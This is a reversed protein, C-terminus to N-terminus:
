RRTFYESIESLLGRYDRNLGEFTWPEPPQHYPYDFKHILVKNFMNNAKEETARYDLLPDNISMAFFLPQSFVDRIYGFDTNLIENIQYIVVDLTGAPFVMIKKKLESLNEVKGINGLLWMILKSSKEGHMVKLMTKQAIKPRLIRALVKIFFIQWKNHTLAKNTLCPSVLIVKKIRDRLLDLTEIALIGGFSFGMLTVKEYGLLDILDRVTEAVLESKYCEPFRRSKGQGPLEFFHVSYKQGFFQILGQYNDIESITAPVIILPEGNGCKCYHLRTLRLDAFHYTIPYRM